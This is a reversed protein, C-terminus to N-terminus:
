DSQKAVCCNPFKFDHKGQPLPWTKESGYIDVISPLCFFPIQFCSCLRSEYLQGFEFCTCIPKARNSKESRRNQCCNERVVATSQNYDKWNQQWPLHAWGFYWSWRRWWQTYSHRKNVKATHQVGISLGILLIRCINFSCWWGIWKEQWNFCLFNITLKNIRCRLSWKCWISVNLWHLWYWSFQNWRSGYGSNTNRRRPHQSFHTYPARWGFLSGEWEGFRYAKANTEWKNGASSWMFCAQWTGRTFRVSTSLKLM